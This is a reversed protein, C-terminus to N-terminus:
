VINIPEIMVQMHFEKLFSIVEPAKEVPNCTIGRMGHFFRVVTFRLHEPSGPIQFPFYIVFKNFHNLLLYYFVPSNNLGKKIGMRTPSGWIM